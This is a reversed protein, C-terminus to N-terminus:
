GRGSACPRPPNDGNGNSGYNIASGEDANDDNYSCGGDYSVNSSDSTDRYGNKEKDEHDNIQKTSTDNIM